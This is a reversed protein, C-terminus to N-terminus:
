PPARWEPDAAGKSRVPTCHTADHGEPRGIPLTVRFTTGTGEESELEIDGGHATVIAKAIYLGLGVGEARSGSRWYREFLRPQVEAPIGKGTDRVDFCVRDRAAGARLEVRGDRETFKIANAVLNALVQVLRERDAAVLLGEEEVRATFRVGKQEALPAFLEFTSAVIESVECEHRVVRLQGSAIAASDILGDILHSMRNVTRAIAAASERTRIDPSEDRMSGSRLGIVNLPNRLDHAVIGLLDDRNAVANEARDTAEQQAVYLRDLRRSVVWALFAALVPVLVGVAIVVVEARHLSARLSTRSAELTQEEYAVLEEITRTLAQRRPVLVEEFVRSLSERDLSETRGAELKELALRYGAIADRIRFLFQEEGPSDLVQGLARVQSEVDRRADATATFFAPDASLLYGRAMAVMREAGLELQRAVTVGRTFREMMVDRRRGSDRQVALAIFLASASLAIVSAFGIAAQIKFKNRPSM